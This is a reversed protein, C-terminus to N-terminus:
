LRIFARHKTTKNFLWATFHINYGLYKAERELLRAREKSVGRKRSIIESLNSPSIGANHALAAKDGRKWYPKM